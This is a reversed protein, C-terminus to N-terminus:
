NEEAIFSEYCELEHKNALRAKLWDGKKTSGKVLKKAEAASSAQVVWFGDTSDVRYEKIRMEHPTKM